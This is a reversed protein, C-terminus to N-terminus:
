GFKPCLEVDIGLMSDSVPLRSEGQIAGRANAGIVKEAATSGAGVFVALSEETTVLSNLVLLRSLNASASSRCRSNDEKLPHLSTPAVISVIRTELSLDLSHVFDNDATHPSFNPTLV